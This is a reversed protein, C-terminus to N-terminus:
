EALTVTIVDGFNTKFKIQEVDLSLIADLVGEPFIIDNFVQGLVHELWENGGYTEIGLERLKQEIDAQNWSGSLDSDTDCAITLTM